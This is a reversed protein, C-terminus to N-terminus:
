YNPNFKAEGPIEKIKLEKGFLDKVICQIQLMHKYLKTSGRNKVWSVKGHDKVDKAHRENLKEFYEENYESHIKHVLKSLQEKDKEISSSLNESFTPGIKYLTRKTSNLYEYFIDEPPRAGM